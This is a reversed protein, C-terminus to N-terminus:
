DEEYDIASNLNKFEIGHSYLLSDVKKEAEYGPLVEDLLRQLDQKDVDFSITITYTM